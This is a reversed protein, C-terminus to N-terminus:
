HQTYTDVEDFAVGFCALLARMLNLDQANLVKITFSTHPSM